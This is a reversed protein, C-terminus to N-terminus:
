YLNNLKLKATLPHLEEVNYPQGDRVSGRSGSASPKRSSGM